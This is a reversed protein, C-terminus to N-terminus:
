PDDVPLIPLVTLRSYGCKSVYICMDIRPEPHASCFSAATFLGDRLIIWIQNLSNFCCSKVNLLAPKVCVLIDIM